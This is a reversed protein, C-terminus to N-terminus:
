KRGFDAPIEWRIETERKVIKNTFNHTKLWISAEQVKELLDKTEKSYELTTKIKKTKVRAIATMSDSYIMKTSKKEWLYKIADVIALFEGLNNTGQPFLPSNYIVKKTKLDVIRYEMPWPNWICSADVCLADKIHDM